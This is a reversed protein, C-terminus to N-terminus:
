VLPEYVEDTGPKINFQYIFAQLKVFSIIFTVYTCTGEKVYTFNETHIKWMINILYYREEFLHVNLTPVLDCCGQIGVLIDFMTSNSILCKKRESKHTVNIAHVLFFSRIIISLSFFKAFMRQPLLIVGFHVIWNLM